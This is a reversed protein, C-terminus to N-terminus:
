ETGAPNKRFTIRSQGFYNWFFGMAIAIVKAVIYNLSFFEVAITLIALNLGLGTLSIIAFLSFQRFYKRNRDHFNLYKNLLYSALMGSLYSTTASCLYWVHYHETFLYLLGIDVFSSFIGILFFGYFEKRTFDALIKM